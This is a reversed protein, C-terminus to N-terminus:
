RIRLEVIKSQQDYEGGVAISSNKFSIPYWWKFVFYFADGQPEDVTKTFGQQILFQELEYFDSGPSFTEQM